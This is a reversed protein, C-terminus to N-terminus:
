GALRASGAPQCDFWARAEETDCAIAARLADLSPYKREDHLKHLLDVRVCRGYGADLALDEPWQLCHAELLVRGGDAVTPRVGLSAVAHLPQRVLGHVRM